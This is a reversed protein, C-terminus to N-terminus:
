PQSSWVLAAYAAVPAAFIAFAVLGAPMVVSPARRVTHLRIAIERYQAELVTPSRQEIVAPLDSM